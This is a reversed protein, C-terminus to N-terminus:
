SLFSRAIAIANEDVSMKQFLIVNDFKLQIIKGMNNKCLVHTGSDMFKVDIVIGGHCLRPVSSKKSIWRIFKGRQIAFVEDVYYYTLLKELIERLEELQFLPRLVNVMEQSIEDLSKDYLM